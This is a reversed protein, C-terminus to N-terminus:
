LHRDEPLPVRQTRQRPVQVDVSGLSTDVQTRPYDEGATKVPLDAHRYSMDFPEQCHSCPATLWVPLDNIHAALRALLFQRDGVSLGRVAEATAPAGGLTELARCLVTTVRSVHNDAQQASEGLMLELEGTIPCFRFDRRLEGDIRIGGPLSM